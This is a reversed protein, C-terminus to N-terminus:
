KIDFCLNLRILFTSFFTTFHKYIYNLFASSFNKRTVFIELVVVFIKVRRSYEYHFLFKNVLSLCYDVEIVTLRGAMAMLIEFKGIMELLKMLYERLNMYLLQKEVWEGKRMRM